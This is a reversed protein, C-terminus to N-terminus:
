IMKCFGGCIGLAPIKKACYIHNHKRSVTGAQVIDTSKQPAFICNEQLMAMSRITFNLLKSM